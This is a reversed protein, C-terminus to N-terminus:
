EGKKLIIELEGILSDIPMEKISDIMENLSAYTEYKEREYFYQKYLKLLKLLKTKKM